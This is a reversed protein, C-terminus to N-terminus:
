SNFGSNNITNGSTLDDEKNPNKGKLNEQVIFSNTNKNNYVKAIERSQEIDAIALIKNESESIHSIKDNKKYYEQTLQDVENSNLQTINYFKDLLDKTKIKVVEGNISLSYKNKKYEEQKLLDLIIIDKDTLEEGSNLRKFMDYVDLSKIGEGKGIYNEVAMAVTYYNDKEAQYHKFFKNNIKTNDPKIAPNNELDKDLQSIIRATAAEDFNMGELVTKFLYHDNGFAQSKAYLNRFFANNIVDEKADKDGALYLILQSNLLQGIRTEQEAKVLNIIDWKSHSNFKQYMDIMTDLKSSLNEYIIHAPKNFIDNTKLHGTTFLNKFWGKDNLPAEKLAENVFLKSSIFNLTNRQEATAYPAIKEDIFAKLRIKEELTDPNIIVKGDKLSIHESLEKNGLILEITNIIENETEPTPDYGTCERIFRKGKRTKFFNHLEKRQEPSMSVYLKHAEEKNEKNNGSMANLMSSAVTEKVPEEKLDLKSINERLAKTIKIQTEVDVKKWESPETLHQIVYQVLEFGKLMNLQQLNFQQSAQNEQKQKKNEEKKEETVQVNNGALIQQLQKLQLQHTEAIKQFNPNDKLKTEMQSLLHKKLDISLPMNAVVNMVNFVQELDTENALEPIQAIFQQLNFNQSM